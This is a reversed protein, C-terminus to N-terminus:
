LKGHNPHFNHQVEATKRAICADKFEDFYGLFHKKRTVTIRACWKQKHKSWHVGLVGSQNRPSLSSNRNNELVTVERLNHWVNNDRIGNIHDVKDTPLDGTLYLFVLRHALYHKGQICIMRYGDLLTGAKSGVKIRRAPKVRWTFEGTILSYNLLEKLEQQNM